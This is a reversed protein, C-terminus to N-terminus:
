SYPPASRSSFRVEPSYTSFRQRGGPLSPNPPPLEDTEEESDEDLVCRCVTELHKATDEEALPVIEYNRWDHLESTSYGIPRTTM